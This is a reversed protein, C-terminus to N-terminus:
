PINQYVFLSLVCFNRGIKSGHLISISKVPDKDCVLERSQIPYEGSPLQCSVFPVRMDVSLSM